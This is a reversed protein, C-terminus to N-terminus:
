EDEFDRRKRGQAIRPIHCYLLGEEDDPDKWFGSKPDQIWGTYPDEVWDKEPIEELKQKPEPKSKHEPKLKIIVM